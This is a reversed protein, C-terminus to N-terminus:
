ACTFCFTLNILILIIFFMFPLLGGGSVQSPKISFDIRTTDIVSLISHQRPKANLSSSVQPPSRIKISFWHVFIFSSSYSPRQVFPMGADSWAWSAWPWTASTRALQVVQPLQRWPCWLCFTGTFLHQLGHCRGTFARFRTPITSSLQSLLRSLHLNNEYASGIHDYM